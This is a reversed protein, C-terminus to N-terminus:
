FFVLHENMKKPHISFFHLRHRHRGGPHGRDLDQQERFVGVREAGDETADDQRVDVQRRRDFRSLRRGVAVDGLRHVGHLKM